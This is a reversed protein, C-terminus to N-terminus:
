NTQMNGYIKVNFIFNRLQQYDLMNKKRRSDFNWQEQYLVMTKDMTGYNNKMTGYNNKWLVM